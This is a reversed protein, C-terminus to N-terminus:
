EYKLADICDECILRGEITRLNTSLAGCDECKGSFVQSRLFAEDKRSINYWERSIEHMVPSMRSVDRQTLIGILQGNEVVPLRRINCKGMMKIAEELYINPDTIIIPSTMIDKVKVESAKLDLAVVKKLIDSETIIGIPKKDVVICNGIKKEKMRQAAHMVTAEPGVTVPNMKMAERVLFSGRSM